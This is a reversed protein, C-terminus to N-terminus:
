SSSKNGFVIKLELCVQYWPKKESSSLRAGFSEENMLKWIETGIFIGATKPMRNPPFDNVCTGIFGNGNRNM